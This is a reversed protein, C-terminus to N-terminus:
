RVQGYIWPAHSHCDPSSYNAVTWQGRGGPMRALSFFGTDGCSEEFFRVLQV